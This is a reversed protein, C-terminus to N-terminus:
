WSFTYVERQHSRASCICWFFRLTFHLLYHYPQTPQTSTYELKWKGPNTPMIVNNNYTNVLLLFHRSLAHVRTSTVTLSASIISGCWHRSLLAPFTPIARILFRVSPPIGPKSMTSSFNCSTRWKVSFLTNIFIKDDSSPGYLCFIGRHLGGNLTRHTRNLNNLQETIKSRSLVSFGVDHSLTDDYVRVHNLPSIRCQQYHRKYIIWKPIMGKSWSSVHIIISLAEMKFQDLRRGDVGPDAFCIRREKDLHSGFSFLVRLPSLTCHRLTRTLLPVPLFAARDGSSRLM